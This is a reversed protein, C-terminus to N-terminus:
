CANMICIRLNRYKIFPGGLYRLSFTDAQWHLLHLLQPNLGQTPFICQLLFHCGVRTRTQFIGHVCSGPLSYDM